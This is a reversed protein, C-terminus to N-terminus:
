SDSGELIHDTLKWEYYMSQVDSWATNEGYLLSILEITPLDPMKPPHFADYNNVLAAIKGAKSNMFKTIPLASSQLSAEEEFIECFLDRDGRFQPLRFEIPPTLFSEWPSTHSATWDIVGTVNYDHDYLINCNNLDPHRLPFPGDDTQPQVFHPIAQMYLWALVIHDENGEQLKMEYYIQHRKRFFETATSCENFRHYGESIMGSIRYEDEAIHLLGINPFCLHSLQLMIIAIQRYVKRKVDDPIQPLGVMLRGPMADMVLYAAGVDNNDRLDYGHVSPIPICTHSKVYQMTVVESQMEAFEKRSFSQVGPRPPLRLKAVWVMEAGFRLELVLSEQGRSFKELVVCCDSREAYSNAHQKLAEIDVSRLFEDVFLAEWPPFRIHGEWNDSPWSCDVTPPM